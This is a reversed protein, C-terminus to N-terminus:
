FYTTNVNEAFNPMNWDLTDYFVRLKNNLVSKFIKDRDVYDNLFKYLEDPIIDTDFAISEYGYENNKLYIWKIKDGSRIFRYHKHLKNRKLYNNYNISAKIHVPTGKVYDVNKDIYKGINKVGTNIAIDEVKLEDKKFYFDKIKKDVEDKESEGLINKLIEDLIPKMAKPFSSKINDIGKIELEDVEKGERNIVSLAYKKKSVLFATKAVVEQKLSLYKNDNVNLLNKCILKLRSNVYDQIEKTKELIENSKCYKHLTIFLSDTDCYIVRREGFYDNTIKESLKTLNQGTMTVAESLDTDYFRFFPSALVGYFSNMLIKMVYQKIDYEKEEDKTKAKKKLEKYEVRENFWEGVIKPIFGVKDMNYIVGNCAISYNRKDLLEKLKSLATKGKKDPLQLIIEKDDYEKGQNMKYFDKMFETWNLVKGIKTEPSINLTRIINPYLSTFDLDIVKKYLGPKPEKVYAGEIGEEDGDKEPRNPAVLKNKKLFTFIAGEIIKSQSFIWEYPIRAKHALYIAIQLYNLKDELQKLIEADRLNYQVFKKLDKKYLEYLGGKYKVKGLGLEVEAINDLSYSSRDNICYKKYLNMFDIHNRCGLSFFGNEKQDIINIPSLAKYNLGIKKMRNILYPLDFRDGNWDVLISVKKDNLFKCFFELLDEENGYQYIKVNDIEIDEDSNLFIYSKNNIICAISLVEKDGEEVNPFGDEDSTEIDYFCIINQAISDDNYYNDVLTRLIPHVDIEYNNKNYRHVKEVSEGYITHYDSKDSKKYSYGKYPFVLSLKKDDYITIENKDKNYYISQYM